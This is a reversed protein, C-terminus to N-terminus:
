GISIPQVKLIFQLFNNTTHMLVNIVRPFYLTNKDAVLAHKKCENM